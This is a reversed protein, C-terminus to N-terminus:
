INVTYTSSTVHSWEVSDVDDLYIERGDFSTVNLNAGVMEGEEDFVRSEVYDLELKKNVWVNTEITLKKM